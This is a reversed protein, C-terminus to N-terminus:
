KRVFRRAAGESARRRHEGWQRVRKGSGRAGPGGERVNSTEVTIGFPLNMSVSPGTNGGRNSGENRRSGSQGPGPSPRRPGADEVSSDDEEDQDEAAARYRPSERRYQRDQQTGPARPRPPYNSMGPRIDTSNSRRPGLPRQPASMTHLLQKGSPQKKLRSEEVQLDPSHHLSPFNLHVLGNLLATPPNQENNKKENICFWVSCRPYTPQFVTCPNTTEHRGDEDSM